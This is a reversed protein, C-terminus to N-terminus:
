GCTTYPSACLYKREVWGFFCKENTIIQLLFFNNSIDYILAIYSQYIHTIVKSNVNPESFIPLAISDYNQIVIGIDGLHIWVNNLKLEPIDIQFYNLKRKKVNVIWGAEDDSDLEKYYEGPSYYISVSHEIDVPHTFAEVNNYKIQYGGILFVSAFLFLSITKKM